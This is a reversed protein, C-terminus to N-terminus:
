NMSYTWLWNEALFALDLIDVWGNRDMDQPALLTKSLWNQTFQVFDTIDVQDDNNLDAVNGALSTSQSAQSTGGYAGINVLRGHPWLERVIHENPDGADIAPSDVDDLVWAGTQPSNLWNQMLLALDVVDVINNRDLDSAIDPGTQMWDGSFCIFDGLTVKGDDNFDCSRYFDPDWRGITSRLHYNSATVSPEQLAFQPNQTINGLGLWNLVGYSNTFVGTEGGSVCCYAVTLVAPHQFDGEIALQGGKDAQNGWVISNKLYLVSNTCLLGGGDHGASNDAITFNELTLNHSDVVWVGAGDSAENGAIIINRLIASQGEGTAQIGGGSGYSVTYCGIFVCESIEPSNGNMDLYLGGGFSGNNDQFICRNVIPNCDGCLYGGGGFTGNNNQFVCDRIVPNSDVTFYFGGGNGLTYNGEFRCNEIVPSAQNQGYVAGGAAYSRNEQFMCNRMTPSAGDCFVAGGVSPKSTALPIVEEPGYGDIFTIGEVVAESTENHAFSIGRHPNNLTGQCNIICNEPGKDSQLHIHRTQGGGLGDAFDLDVNGPGQYVGDALIVKDGDVCLNVANQITRKPGNPDGPVSSTGNWADNGFVPDVYFTSAQVSLRSLAALAGMVCLLGIRSLM